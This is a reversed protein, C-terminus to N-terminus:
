NGEGCLPAIKREIEWLHCSFETGYLPCVYAPLCIFYSINEQGFTKMKNKKKKETWDWLFVSGSVFSFFLFLGANKYWIDASILSPVFIHKPDSWEKKGGEWGAGENM